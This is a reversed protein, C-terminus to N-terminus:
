RSESGDIRTGPFPLPRLLIADLLRFGVAASGIGSGLPALVVVTFPRARLLSRLSRLQTLM